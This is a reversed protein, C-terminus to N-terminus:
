GRTSAPPSGHRVHHVCRALCFRGYQTLNPNPHIGAGTHTALSIERVSSIVTWRRRSRSSEGVLRPQPTCPSRMTRGPGPRCVLSWIRTPLYREAAECARFSLATPPLPGVRPRDRRLPPSPGMTVAPTPVPPTSNAPSSSRPPEPQYHLIPTLDAGRVIGGTHYTIGWSDIISGDPFTCAQLVHINTDLDDTVWGGGSGNAAGLESGGLHRCYLSAPNASTSTPEPMPPTTLYALAALTPTMAMLTDLDVAIWSTPPDAGEGGTFECFQRSGALQLQTEPNNTGLAPYRDRVVGGQQRCYIAPDQVAGLSAQTADPTAVTHASTGMPWALLGLMLVRRLCRM